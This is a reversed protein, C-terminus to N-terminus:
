NIVTGPTPRFGTAPKFAPLKNLTILVPQEIFKGVNAKLAAELISLNDSSTENDVVMQSLLSTLVTLSDANEWVKSRNHVQANHPSVRLQGTALNLLPAVDLLQGREGDRGADQAYSVDNTQALGHFFEHILNDAIVDHNFGLGVFHRNINPTYIEIFAADSQKDKWRAYAVPDFAALHQTQKLPDLFFNSISVGGFDARVLRLYKQMRDFAETSNSGLLIHMLQGAEKSSAADSLAKLAQDIKKGAFVLSREVFHRTYNVPLITSPPLVRAPERLVFEGLQPGWPKGNRSLAFWRSHVQVAIVNLGDAVSDGSRVLGQGTLLVDSKGFLKRVGSNANLTGLQSNALRLLEQTQRNLRLAGKHVLKAGGWLLTPVGDLPNVLSVSTTLALSTLRSAKAALSIAKGSIRIVQTAAGFFAGGVAIADMVCGYVGDIVLNRDGSALDEVCKKFPVALNVLYTAVNELTQREQELKTAVVAMQRLEALTRFPHKKVVFSALRAIQLNNFNQYVSPDRKFEVTPASLTGLKDVIAMHLRASSPEVIGVTYEDVDLPVRELPAVMRPAKPDGKFDVRASTDFKGTKKLWEGLTNNKRLVCRLGFLEYCTIRDHSTACMILAFRGTAADISEQTEYQSVAEKPGDRGDVTIHSSEIVAPVRVTFFTVDSKLFHELDYPPMHSIALKLNATLAENVNDLYALLQREFDQQVPKLRRLGTFREHISITTPKLEPRLQALDYPNENPFVGKLDWNKGKLDGSVHLNVMSMPLRSAIPSPREYLIEDDLFDCEPIADRLADRAIQERSPLPASWATAFQTFRNAYAEFAMVARKTEQEQAQALAIPTTVSNILAWDVIPDILALDRLRALAPSVPELQAYDMIQAYTLVRAAGKRVGEVLNVGRCFSVWGPSGALMNAPVNRVVFEPAIHALLLHGALVATDSNTWKQEHLFVHLDARVNAMPREVNSADYLDFGGITKRRTQTGVAPYLDLLIATLLLQGLERQTAVQGTQSGYWGLAQIYQRAYQQAVPHELLQTILVNANDTTVVGPKIEHFLKDLLRTEGCLTRSVKRVTSYHEASLVALPLDDNVLYGWYNDFEDFPPSFEIWALLNRVQEANKPVDLDHFRLWQDVDVVDKPYIFGGALAAIEGILSIQKYDFTEHHIHNKIDVQEWASKGNRFLEVKGGFAIRIDSSSEAHMDQLFGHVLSRGQLSSWQVRGPMHIGHLSSGPVLPVEYGTWDYPGADGQEDLVSMLVRVALKLEEGDSKAQLRQQVDVTFNSTKQNSESM